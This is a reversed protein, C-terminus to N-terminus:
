SGLKGKKETNRIHEEEEIKAHKAALPDAVM